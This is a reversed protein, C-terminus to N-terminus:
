RTLMHQFSQLMQVESQVRWRILELEVPLATEGLKQTLMGVTLKGILNVRQLQRKQLMKQAHESVLDIFNCWMDLQQPTDKYFDTTATGASFEVLSSETELPNRCKTGGLAIWCYLHQGWLYTIHHRNAKGNHRWM